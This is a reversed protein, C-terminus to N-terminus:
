SQLPGIDLELVNEPDMSTSLGSHPSKLFIDELHDFASKTYLDVPNVAKGGKLGKVIGGLIGPATGQQFVTVSSICLLINKMFYFRSCSITVKEVKKRQVQSANLAADAAAALVKDHLCPM